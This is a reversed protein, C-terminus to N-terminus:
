KLYSTKYSPEGSLVGYTKGCYINILFNHFNCMNLHSPKNGFGTKKVFAGDVEVAKRWRPVLAHIGQRYWEKDRQKQHVWTEDATFIRSLSAERM